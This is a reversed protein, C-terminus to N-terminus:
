YLDGVLVREEDKVIEKSIHLIQMIWSKSIKAMIISGEKEEIKQILQPIM